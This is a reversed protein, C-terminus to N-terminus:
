QTIQQSCSKLWKLSFNVLRISTKLEPGIKELVIDVTDEIVKYFKELMQSTSLNM